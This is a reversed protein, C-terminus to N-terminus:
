FHYVLGVPRGPSFTLRPAAALARKRKSRGVLAMILGTVALAGGSIFLIDAVLANTTGSSIVEQRNEFSMQTDLESQQSLALGGFVGGIILAAGGVGLVSYGAIELKSLKRPAEGDDVPPDNSPGEPEPEPEVQDPPPKEPGTIEKQIERLVRLRELAIERSELDVGPSQVFRQYYEVAKDIKGSEEYVRGINFLYNPQSDISYAREFLEVAGEYDKNQFREVAAANLADTDETDIAAPEEGGAEGASAVEEEETAKLPAAADARAPTLTLGGLALTPLLAACVLARLSWAVLPSARRRM